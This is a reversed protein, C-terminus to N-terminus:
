SRPYKQTIVAALFRNISDFGRQKQRPDQLQSLHLQINTATDLNSDGAMIGIRREENGIIGIAFALYDASVHTGPLATFMRPLDAPDRPDIRNFALTKLDHVAGIIMPDTTGEMYGLAAGTPMGECLFARGESITFTKPIVGAYPPIERNPVHIRTELGQVHGKNWFKLLNKGDGMNQLIESLTAEQLQEGPRSVERRVPLIKEVFKPREM